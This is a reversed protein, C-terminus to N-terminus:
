VARAVALLSMGLPVRVMSEVRALLPMIRDYVRLQTAPVIRRRLVRGNLLWGPIGLLNMWELHEVEFGNDAIVSRLSAPMYRRHHGVARDLTGFLFPLAPVLIVINGGRPLVKRFNCLAAADDEIHELVNSLLVSDLRETALRSWDTEEVSSHLTRVRPEGRFTRELHGAYFEEAELAIVLECGPLIERTMTGIGAGVELVRKGLYARLRKGLWANYNPADQEIVTLTAYGQPEFSSPAMRFGM